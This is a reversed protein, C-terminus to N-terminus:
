SKKHLGGPAPPERFDNLRIQEMAGHIAFVAWIPWLPPWALLLMGLIKKGM